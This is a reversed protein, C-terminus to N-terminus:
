MNISMKDVYDYVVDFELIFLLLERRPTDTLSVKVAHPVCHECSFIPLALFFFLM